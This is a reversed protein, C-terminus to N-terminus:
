ITDKDDMNKTNEKLFIETDLKIGPPLFYADPAIASTAAATAAPDAAAFVTADPTSENELTIPQNTADDAANNNM